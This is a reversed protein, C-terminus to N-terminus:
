QMNQEFTFKLDHHFSNANQHFKCSSTSPLDIKHLGGFIFAFLIFNTPESLSAFEFVSSYNM